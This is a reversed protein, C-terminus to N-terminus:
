QSPVNASYPADRFEFFTWGHLALVKMADDFDFALIVAM